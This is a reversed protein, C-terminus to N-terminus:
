EKVVTSIKGKLVEDIYERYYDIRPQDDTDGTNDSVGNETIFVPTNNYNTRVWNLGQRIGWPTVKLWSSGSSCFIFYLYVRSRVKM